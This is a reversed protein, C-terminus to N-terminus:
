YFRLHCGLVFPFSFSSSFLKPQGIPSPFDAFLISSPFYFRGVAVRTLSFLADAHFLRFPGEVQTSRLSPRSSCRSSGGLSCSVCDLEIGVLLPCLQSLSYICNVRLGQLEPCLCVCSCCVARTVPCLFLFPSLSFCVCLDCGCGSACREREQGQVHGRHSHRINFTM